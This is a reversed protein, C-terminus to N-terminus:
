SHGRGTHTPVPHTVTSKGHTATPSPATPATSSSPVPAGTATPPAASAVDHAAPSAGAPGATATTHRAPARRTPGPSAAGPHDAVRPLPLYPSSVAPGGLASSLLVAVYAAAPLVLLRGARRM